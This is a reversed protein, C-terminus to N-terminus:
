DRKQSTHQIRILNVVDERVEYVVIYRLKSFVLERTGELKGKRGLFPFKGLAATM